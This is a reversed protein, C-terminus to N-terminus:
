NKTANRTATDAPICYRKSDEESRREEGKKTPMGEMPHLQGRKGRPKHLDSPKPGQRNPRKETGLRRLYVDATVRSGRAVNEYWRRLAVDELLFAYKARKPM